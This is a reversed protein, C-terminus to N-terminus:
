RPATDHQGNHGGRGGHHGTGSGTATGPVPPLTVVIPDPNLVPPKKPPRPLLTPTNDATAPACGSETTKRALRLTCSSQPVVM